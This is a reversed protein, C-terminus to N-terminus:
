VMIEERKKETIKKSVEGEIEETTFVHSSLMRFNILAAQFSDIGPLIASGTADAAVSVEFGLELLHRLHSEICLNASMGALIVKNVQRKRLQLGLDNNQPGFVKHPNCMVVNKEKFFPKFENLFDAGSNEFGETSLLGKRDYMKVAHMMKELTGEFKWGHDTPFYWHPSVFVPMDKEKWLQLLRVINQITNNKKLSEKVLDYAVGDPHLFDNQPDVLVLATHADITFGPDPLKADTASKIIPWESSKM